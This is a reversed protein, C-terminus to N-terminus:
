FWKAAQVWLRGNPQPEATPGSDISLPHAYSMRVAFNDKLGLNLGIGAGRLQRSRDQGPLAERMSAEGVEVFLTWQALDGWQRHGLSEHVPGRANWRLEFGAVYGNDGLAEGQSYARVGSPGGAGFQEAGVLATSSLQGALRAGVSWASTFRHTHSLDMVLKSFSADVNVRSPAPDGNTDLSGFAFALGYNTLSSEGLRNDGSLSVSVVRLEDRSTPTGLFSEEIRKADFGFQGYLNFARSRVYPRQLSVSAIRAVGRIELPRLDKELEYDLHSYALGLKTGGSDIPALYALRGFGMPGGASLVRLSLQDGIASPNNLDLTLGARYRGAYRSGFNNAELSGSVLSGDRLQVDLDTTGMTAGPRLTAGAEIGALDNLLLLSREIERERVVDGPKVYELVATASDQLRAENAVHIKGYRGEIVAIEIEGDVVQQAPLYARAVPYGRQRYFETIRDAIAQLGAFDIEQDISSGVLTRLVPGSFATNGTFRLIKVRVKIGPVPKLAPRAPQEIELRPQREKAPPSPKVSELVAGGGRPPQANANPSAALAMLVAVLLAARKM